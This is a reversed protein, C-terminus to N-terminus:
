LCSVFGWLLRQFWARHASGERGESARNGPPSPEKKQLARLGRSLARSPSLSRGRVGGEEHARDGHLKHRPGLRM